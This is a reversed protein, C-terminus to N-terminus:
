RSRMCLLFDVPVLYIPIELPFYWAHEGHGFVLFDPGTNACYLKANEGEKERIDSFRLGNFEKANPYINDDMHIAGAATGLTAGAPITVGNSFTYPKM